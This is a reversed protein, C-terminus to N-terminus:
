EKILDIVINLMEISAKLTVGNEDLYTDISKTSEISQTIHIARHKVGNIEITEIGIVKVKLLIPEDHEISPEYIFSEIEMGKKFKGEILKALFYNGELLFDRDIKVVSKEGNVLLKIERGKFEAVTDISQINKGHIIQNRTELRVPKFDKTETITQKSTNVVMGTKMTLESTTIYHNNVLENSMRAKGAESRNVYLKYNWSGTPIKEPVKDCVLMFGTIAILIYKLSGAIM